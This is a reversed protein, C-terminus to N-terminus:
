IFGFGTEGESEVPSGVDYLVLESEESADRNEHADVFSTGIPWQFQLPKRLALLTPTPPWTSLSRRPARGITERLMEMQM